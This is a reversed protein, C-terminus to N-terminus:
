YEIKQGAKIPFVWGISKRRVGKAQLEKFLKEKMKTVYGYPDYIILGDAFADLIFGTKASFYGALDERTLWVSEVGFRVDSEVKRKLQGREPWDPLNDIFVLLDVDSEYRKWPKATGRAVSGYVLVGVLDRGLHSYVGNVYRKTVRLYDNDVTKFNKLEIESM